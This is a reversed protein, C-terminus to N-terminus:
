FRHLTEQEVRSRLSAATSPSIIRIALYAIAALALLKVALVLVGMAIGFVVSLVISGVIFAVFALALFFIVRLM